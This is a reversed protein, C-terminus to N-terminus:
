SNLWKDLLNGGGEPICQVLINLCQVLLREVLHFNGERVNQEYIHADRNRLDKLLRCGIVFRRQDQCSLTPTLKGALKEFIDDLGGLPKYITKHVKKLEKNYVKIVWEDIDVDSSPLPLIGKETWGKHILEGGFGQLLSVGKVFYEAGVSFVTWTIVRGYNPKVPKVNAEWWCTYETRTNPEFERAASDWMVLHSWLM